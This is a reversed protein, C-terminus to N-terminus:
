ILITTQTAVYHIYQFDYHFFSTTADVDFLLQTFLIYNFKTIIFVYMITNPDIITMM